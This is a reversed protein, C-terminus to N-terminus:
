LAEGMKRVERLATEYYTLRAAAASDNARHLGEVTLTLAREVRAYYRPLLPDHLLQPPLYQEGPSLARAQGYRVSLLNYLFGGDAVLSEARIGFGMAGLKRRLDNGSSQPQLLLLYREDRVWACDALIHAIVDGGMGACVITDVEGPRVARLGDARSFRMQGAVGFRLANEEARRIPLERLDCAHVFSARGSQLLAISLYGHDAGIDAVRAGAPVLAALARLRESLPLKM